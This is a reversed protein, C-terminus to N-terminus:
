RYRKSIRAGIVEHGYFTWDKKDASQRRSAPKGIDHFLASLRINLPWNKSAAHDLANLNHEWIHYIHNKNQALGLGDELEPAIFKLLGFDKLMEIGKSPTEAM